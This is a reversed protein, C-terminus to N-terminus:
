DIARQLWFFGRSFDQPNKKARKFGSVRWPQLTEKLM